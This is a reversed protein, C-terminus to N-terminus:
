FPRAAPTTKFGSPEPRPLARAASMLVVNVTKSTRPPLPPLAVRVTHGSSPLLRGDAGIARKSDPISVGVVAGRVVRDGRNRVVVKLVDGVIRARADLEARERWWEAVDGVTAVWVASDAVLHRAVSALSPVLTPDALVQSHYSLVYHGGLARM